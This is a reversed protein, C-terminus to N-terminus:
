SIAKLEHGAATNEFVLRTKGQEHTSSSRIFQVRKGTQVNELVALESGAAQEVQYEGAPLTKHNQVEFAFPIAFKESKV